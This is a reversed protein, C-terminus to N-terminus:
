TIVMLWNGDARRSEVFSAEPNPPTDVVVWATPDCSSM